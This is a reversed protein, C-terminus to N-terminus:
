SAKSNITGKKEYIQVFFNEYLPSNYLSLAEDYLNYKQILNSFIYLSKVDSRFLSLMSGVIFNMGQCYGVNGPVCCM